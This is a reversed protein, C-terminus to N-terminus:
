AKGRILRLAERSANKVDSGAWSDDLLKELTPVFVTGSTGELGMARIAALNVWRDVYPYAEREADKFAIEQMEERSTNSGFNGILFSDIAFKGEERILRQGHKVSRAEFVFNVTGGDYDGGSSRQRRREVDVKMEVLTSTSTIKDFYTRWLKSKTISKKVQQNHSGADVRIRRDLEGSSCGVAALLGAGLILASVTAFFRRFSAWDGHNM